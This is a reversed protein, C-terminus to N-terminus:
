SDLESIKKRVYNYSKEGFIWAFGLIMGLIAFAPIILISSREPSTPLIPKQITTFIPTEEQLRIKAEELRQSMSSYIQLTLDREDQLRELEITATATLNGQNNDVFNAHVLQAKEYRVKAAQYLNEVFQLNQKAKESRYNIIYERMREGIITNVQSSAMPDVMDIEIELVSNESNLTVRNKVQNMAKRFQPSLILVNNDIVADETEVPLEKEQSGALLRRIHSVLTFPLKITYNTITQYVAERFPTEYHENFYEFLTLESQFNSFEVPQFLILQQFDVSEIIEPYLEPSIGTGSAGSTGFNYGGFQNILRLGDSAGGQNEAEQLLKSTSKYEVPAFTYHFIGILFFTLVTILIKRKGRWLIEFIESLSVDDDSRLNKLSKFPVDHSASKSDNEKEESYQNGKQSKSM